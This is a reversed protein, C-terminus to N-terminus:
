QSLEKILSRIKKGQIAPIVAVAVDGTVQLYDGPSAKLESGLQIRAGGEIIAVTEEVREVLFPIAFCM